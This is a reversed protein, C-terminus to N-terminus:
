VYQKQMNKFKCRWSEFNILNKTEMALINVVIVDVDIASVVSQICIYNFDKKMIIIQFFPSYAIPVIRYRWFLRIRM